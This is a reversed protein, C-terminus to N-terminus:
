FYTLWLLYPRRAHVVAGSGERGGEEKVIGQTRLQLLAETYMVGRRSRNRLANQGSISAYNSCNRLPFVSFIVRIGSQRLTRIDDGYLDHPLFLVSHTSSLKRHAAFFGVDSWNVM